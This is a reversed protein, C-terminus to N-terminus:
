LEASPMFDVMLNIRTNSACSRSEHPMSYDFLATDGAKKLMRVHGDCVMKCGGGVLDNLLLHFIFHRRSHTHLGLHAGPNLATFAAYHLGKVGALLKLTESFIAPADMGTIVHDKKYFALMSYSGDRLDYGISDTNIGNDWTWQNSPFDMAMEVGLIDRVHQHSAMARRLEDNIVAVHEAIPMLFPYESVDMFM